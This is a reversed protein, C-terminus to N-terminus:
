TGELCRKLKRFIKDKTWFFIPSGFINIRLRNNQWFIAFYACFIRLYAGIHAFRSFFDSIHAFFACIHAACIEGGGQGRIGTEPSAQDPPTYEFYLHDFPPSHISYSQGKLAAKILPPFFIQQNCIKVPDFKTSSINPPNM